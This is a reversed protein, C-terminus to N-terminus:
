KIVIVILLLIRLFHERIDGDTITGVLKKNEVICIIKLECEQLVRIADSMTSKKTLINKKIDTM